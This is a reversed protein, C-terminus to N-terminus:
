DQPEQPEDGVPVEPQPDPTPQEVAPETAEASADTAAPEDRVQIEGGQSAEGGVPPVTDTVADFAPEDGVPRDVRGVGEAGPEESVPVDAPSGARDARSIAPVSSAAPAPRPEDVQQDLDRDVGIPRSVAAVEVERGRDDGFLESAGLVGGFVAAAGSVAATGFAWWAADSAVKRVEEAQELAERRVRRLERRAKSKLKDAQSLAEDRVSELQALLAEADDEDLDSRSSAIVARLTDRDMAQWRDRLAEAGAKPDHFLLAVDEKLSDYDLEPQGISAFYGRLKQEARRRVAEAGGEAQSLRRDLEDRGTGALGTVSAVVDQVTDIIRDAQDPGLDSRAELLSRVTERDMLAVRARLAAAGARPETFLRTLDRKIGEPDLEPLDTRELYEELRRRGAEASRRSRGSLQLATDIAADAPGKSPDAAEARVVDFTESLGRRVSEVDEPGLTGRSRLDAVVGEVDIVPGSGGASVAHLELDDLLGAVQRRVAGPEIRRPKLERLYDRLDRKLRQADGDRELVDAVARTMGEAMDSAQQKASPEFLSSTASAVSKFGAMATRILSGVASTVAMGELSTLLTYFLGWTTLGILAGLLANTPGQVDDDLAAQREILGLEGALWCAVFLSIATTIVAWLGFAGTIERAEEAVEETSPLSGKNGRRKRGNGKGDEEDLPGLMSIGAAVSLNTLLLQFAVALILGVLIAVVIYGAGPLYPVVSFMTGEDASVVAGGEPPVVEDTGPSCGPLAVATSAALLSLSLVITRM